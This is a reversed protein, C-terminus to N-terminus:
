TDGTIGMCKALSTDLALQVRSIQTQTKLLNSNSTSHTLVLAKWIVLTIHQQCGFDGARRFTKQYGAVKTTGM